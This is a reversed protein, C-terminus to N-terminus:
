PLMDSAVEHGNVSCPQLDSIGDSVPCAGTAYRDGYIVIPGLLGGTGLENQHLRTCLVTV